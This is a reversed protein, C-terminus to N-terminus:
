PRDPWPGAAASAVDGALKGAVLEGQREAVAGVSAPSELRGGDGSRALTMGSRMRLRLRLTVSPPGEM